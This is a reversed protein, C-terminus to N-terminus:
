SCYLVYQNSVNVSCSCFITGTKLLLSVLHRRRICDERFQLINETCEFNLSNVFLCSWCGFMNCIDDRNRDVGDLSCNQKGCVLGDTSLENSWSIDNKSNLEATDKESKVHATRKSSRTTRTKAHAAVNQEKALRLSTGSARKVKVDLPPASEAIKLNERESKLGVLEDYQDIPVQSFLLCPTCPPLAGDKAALPEKGHNCAGRKTEAISDKSCLMCSTNLKDCSGASFDLGSNNLKEMASQYMGLASSLNGTSQKQLDKEFLNWFLDGAQVDVSIQLTLKCTKCSIFEDNEALLDRAHKLEGEAADWLQRKHYLQGLVHSLISLHVFFCHLLLYIMLLHVYRVSIYLCCCFNTIRPFM